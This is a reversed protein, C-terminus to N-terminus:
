VEQRSLFIGAIASVVLVSIIIGVFNLMPEPIHFIRAIDSVLTTLLNGTKWLINISQVVGSPIGILNETITQQGFQQSRNSMEDSIEALEIIESTFTNYEASQDVATVSYTSSLDATLISMGSLVIAVIVITILLKSLVEAM